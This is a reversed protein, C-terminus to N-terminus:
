LQSSPTLPPKISAVVAQFDEDTWKQPDANRALLGKIVDFVKVGSSIAFDIIQAWLLPNM